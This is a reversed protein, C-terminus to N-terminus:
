PTTTSSDLSTQVKLSVLLALVCCFGAAVFTAMPNVEWAWGSAVAGVAGGAGFSVGSYLAMGQGELGGAFYKRVLEVAFAHATGFSAAHLVQAFLLVALNDALYAILFWRLASLFFSAFMIHRLSFRQLLRHMFVFVIVEAMVGLSWLLGTSARDYGHDELFVSFFTYYPGHSIQLLFCSVLFAIVTPQKLVQWIQPKEEGSKSPAPRENVSLSSLWIGLLLATLIWPLYTIAILDFVFGLVVVAIVFGISGWVRIQSYRDYRGPLHSLTVVEFQALIANWFFSYGAIIIVLWWFGDDAFVGLFILLSLLAGSRVISMRRGTRDALWGWINPAVIKTAMMVGALYGIAEAHYGLDKLYLPWFPLWAGLLAFYFFYFGSLRWYPM